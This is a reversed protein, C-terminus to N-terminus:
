AFRPAVTVSFSLGHGYMLFGFRCGNSILDRFDEGDGTDLTDVSNAAVTQVTHGVRDAVLALDLPNMNPVFFDARERGAGLRVQGALEDDTCSAASRAVQVKDVAQEVAVARADGHECDGRLNRAGLDATPKELLRMGLIEELFAAVTALQHRADSLHRRHELGRDAFRGALTAPRDDHDRAVYGQLASRGR